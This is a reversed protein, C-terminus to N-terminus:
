RLRDGMAKKRWGVRDDMEALTQRWWILFHALRDESAGKVMSRNGCFSIATLKM